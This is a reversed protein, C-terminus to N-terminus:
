DYVDGAIMVADVMKVQVIEIIKELIYKQDQIMSFENVSKGLHLDGLHLIRM